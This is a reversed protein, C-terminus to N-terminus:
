STFGSCSRPKAGIYIIAAACYAFKLLKLAINRSKCKIQLCSVKYALYAIYSRKNSRLNNHVRVEGKVRVLHDRVENATRKQEQLVILAKELRTLTAKASRRQIKATKLAEETVSM